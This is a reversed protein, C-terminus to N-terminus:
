PLTRAPLSFLLQKPAADGTAPPISLIVLSATAATAAVGGRDLVTLTAATGKAELVTMTQRGLRLRIRSDGSSRRLELATTEASTTDVHGDGNQDSAFVVNEADVSAVAPPRLPGAGALSTAHDALQELQRASFLESSLSFCAAHIRAAGTLAGCLLALLASTVSLAAACELLSSM